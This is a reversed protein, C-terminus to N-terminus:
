IFNYVYIINNRVDNRIYNEIDNRINSNEIHYLCSLYFNIITGM